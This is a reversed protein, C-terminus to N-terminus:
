LRRIESGDVSIWKSIENLLQPMRIIGPSHKEKWYKPPYIYIYIDLGKGEFLAWCFHNCCFFKPKLVGDVESTWTGGLFTQWTGMGSAQGLQCRTLNCRRSGVFFPSNVWKTYCVLRIACTALTCVVTLSPGLKVKICIGQYRGHGSHYIMWRWNETKTNRWM